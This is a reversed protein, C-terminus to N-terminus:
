LCNASARSLRDNIASFIENKNDLLSAHIRKKNLRDSLHLIHYLNHAIEIPDGFESLYFTHANDVSLNHSKKPLIIVEDKISPLSEILKDITRYLILPTDPCYHKSMLGPSKKSALNNLHSRTIKNVGRIKIGIVDEIQDKTCMGLRLIQPPNTTLDLVTSEIGLECTGGDIIPPSDLGFEGKVDDYSTPSIKNSKNASPAALPFGVSSLIKRFKPHSPSRVGVTDLGATVEPPVCNKKPLVLTLPGPWFFQSLKESIPNTLCIRSADRHDLVHVILPNSSPRGKLKFVKQVAEASLASCALGYVTESPLICVGNNNLRHICEDFSM